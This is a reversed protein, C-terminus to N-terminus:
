ERNPKTGDWVKGELDPKFGDLKVSIDKDLGVGEKVLASDKLKHGDPLQFAPDDVQKVTGHHVGCQFHTEPDRGGDPDVFMRPEGFTGLDCPNGNEDEWDCVVIWVGDVIKKSM